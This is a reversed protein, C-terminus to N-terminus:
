RPLRVVVDGGGDAHVRWMANDTGSTRLYTLPLTAWQPCGAALLARVIAESTDPEDDHIRESV